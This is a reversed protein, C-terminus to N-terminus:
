SALLFSLELTSGTGRQAGKVGQQIPIPIPIPVSWVNRMRRTVSAYLPSQNLTSWPSFVLPHHSTASSVPYLSHLLVPRSVATPQQSSAAPLVSLQQNIFGVTIGGLPLPTQRLRPLSKPRSDVPM